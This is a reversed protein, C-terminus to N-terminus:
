ANQKLGFSVGTLPADTGDGTGTEANEINVNFRGPQTFRNPYDNLRINITAKVEITLDANVFTDSRKSNTSGTTKPIARMGVYLTPQRVPSYVSAGKQNAAGKEICDNDYQVYNVNVYSSPVFSSDFSVQGIGNVNTVNRRIRYDDASGLSQVFDGSKLEAVHFRAGIPASKFKYHYNVIRDWLKDNINFETIGSQFIEHGVSTGAAWGDALYGADTQQYMCFYDYKNYQIGYAYGPLESDDWLNAPDPNLPWSGYQYKVFDTFDEGEANLAPIMTAAISLTNVQGGRFKKDLDLGILGAKLHTNTATDSTSAGTEFSTSANLVNITAHCDEVYSGAPILDFERQSMYFYIKDVPIYALPTAIWTTESGESALKTIPIAFLRLRHVKTFSMYGHKMRYSPSGLMSLPGQASDFGGESSANHGSMSPNESPANISAGNGSSFADIVDMTDDSSSSVSHASPVQSQSRTVPMTSTPTAQTTSPVVVTRHSPGASPDIDDTRPKKFGGPQNSPRKGSGTVSHTVINTLATSPFAQSYSLSENSAGFRPRHTAANPWLNPDIPPDVRPLGANQRAENWRAVAYYRNDKKLKYLEPNAFIDKDKPFKSM